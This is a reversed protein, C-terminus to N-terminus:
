IKKLPLKVLDSNMKKAHDCIFYIIEESYNLLFTKNEEDCKIPKDNEDVVGKWDVLSYKAIKTLIDLINSESPSLAKESLPFPRILFAIDEDYDFWKEKNAKKNLKLM